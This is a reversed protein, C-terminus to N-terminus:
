ISQESIIMTDRFISIAGEEPFVSEKLHLLVGFTVVKSDIRITKSQCAGFCPGAIFVALAPPGTQKACVRKYKNQLLSFLQGLMMLM